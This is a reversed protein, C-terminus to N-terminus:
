RFQCAVGKFKLQAGELPRKGLLPTIIESRPTKARVASTAAKAIDRMRNMAVTRGIVCIVV